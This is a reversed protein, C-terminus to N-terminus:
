GQGVRVKNGMRECVFEYKGAAGRGSEAAFFPLSRLVNGSRYRFGHWFGNLSTIACHSALPNSHTQPPTKPSSPSENPKAPLQPGGSFNPTNKTAAKTPHNLTARTENLFTVNRMIIIKKKIIGAVQHRNVITVSMDWKYSSIGTM